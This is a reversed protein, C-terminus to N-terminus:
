LPTKGHLVDIVDQDDIVIPFDALKHGSVQLLVTQPHGGNGVPPLHPGEELCICDIQDDEIQHHRAVVAEDQAALQTDASVLRRGDDHQGGARVLHVADDPQFHAGVVIDGFGERRAFQEGADLRDQPARPHQWRVQLDRLCTLQQTRGISAPCSPM